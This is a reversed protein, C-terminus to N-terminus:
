QAFIQKTYNGKLFVAQGLARGYVNLWFAFFFAGM